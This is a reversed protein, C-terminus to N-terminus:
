FTPWRQIRNQNQPMYDFYKDGGSPSTPYRANQDQSTYRGYPPYPGQTLWHECAISIIQDWSGDENRKRRVKVTDMRVTAYPNFDGVPQWDNDFFQDFIFALHGRIYDSSLAAALTQDDAGSCSLTIQPVTDSVADDIQSLTARPGVPRWVFGALEINRFGTWVRADGNGFRFLVFFAHNARDGNAYLQYIDSM